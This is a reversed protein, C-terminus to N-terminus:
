SICAIAAIPRLRLLGLEAIGFHRPQRRGFRCGSEDRHVLDVAREVLGSASFRRADIHRLLARLSQGALEDHVHVRVEQAVVRPELSEYPRAASPGIM